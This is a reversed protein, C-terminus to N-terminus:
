KRRIRFGPAWKDLSPEYVTIIKVTPPLSLCIHIPRNKDAIGNVLCAPIPYAKPYDEIIEGNNIGESVDRITFQEAKIEELAHDTIKFKEEFIYKRIEEIM